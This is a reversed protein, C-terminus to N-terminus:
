TRNGQLLFERFLLHKLFDFGEVHTELTGQRQTPFGDGSAGGFSWVHLWNKFSGYIYAIIRFMGLHASHTSYKGVNPEFKHYMYTSIGYLM